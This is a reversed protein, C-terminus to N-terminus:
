SWCTVTHGCLPWRRRRRRVGLLRARCSALHRGAVFVSGVVRGGRRTRVSRVMVAVMMVVVMVMLLLLLNSCVRCALLWRRCAVMVVVMMMVVGM